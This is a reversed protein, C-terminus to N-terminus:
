NQRRPAPRAIRVPTGSRSPSPLNVNELRLLTKKTELGGSYGGLKGDSAVVRHCPIIVPLPNRALAQGVARAAAPQGIQEAVWRYSRTEGYPILRTIEWVKVQFPKAASLDLKDDRFTGKNGNFYAQLREVLDTLQRPPQQKAKRPSQRTLTLALLGKGSATIDIRGLATYVTVRSVSYSSGTSLKLWSM